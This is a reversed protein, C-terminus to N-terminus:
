HEFSVAVGKRGCPLRWIVSSRRETPVAASAYGDAASEPRHRRDANDPGTSWTVQVARVSDAHGDNPRSYVGIYM